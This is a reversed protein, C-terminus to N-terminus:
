PLYRFSPLNQNTWYVIRDSQDSYILITNETLRGTDKLDIYHDLASFRDVTEIRQVETYEPSGKSSFWDIWSRDDAPDFAAAQGAKSNGLKYLTETNSFKKETPDGSGFIWEPRASTNAWFREHAKAGALVQKVFEPAKGKFGIHEMHCLIAEEVKTSIPKRLRVYSNPAFENWIDRVQQRGNLKPEDKKSPAEWDDGPLLLVINNGDKVALKQNTLNKLLRWLNRPTLDLRTALDTANGLNPSNGSAPCFSRLRMWLMKDAMPIEAELIANPIQTFNGSSEPPKIIM